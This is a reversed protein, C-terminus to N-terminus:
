TQCEGIDKGNCYLMQKKWGGMGAHYQVNTALHRGILVPVM